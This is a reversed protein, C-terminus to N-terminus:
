AFSAFFEVVTILSLKSLSIISPAPDDSYWVPNSNNSVFRSFVIYWISEPEKVNIFVTVSFSEGADAADFNSFSNFSFPPSAPSDFFSIISDNPVICGAPILKALDSTGGSIACVELSGMDFCVNEKFNLLKNKLSITFTADLIGSLTKWSSISLKLSM